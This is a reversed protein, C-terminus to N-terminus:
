RTLDVIVNKGTLRLLDKEVIEMEKELGEKKRKCVLTDFEKKHTVTGYAIKLQELKKRLGERLNSIEDETLAKKKKSEEEETRLQMERITKYENEIESKLKTLYEPVKGYTKKSLYNVKETPKKKPAMLIVDVANATIYNKDSKLGMIPKDQVTPVAPKRIDSNARLKEPLPLTKYQHGKKVFNEPEAKNTGNPKGFTTWSGKVPHAGRPLNVEGNLNAVNPFSSNKLGFTSATPAIWHPFQSKYRPEKVPAIKEQPVLNYISEEQYM